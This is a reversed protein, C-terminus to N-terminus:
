RERVQLMNDVETLLGMAKGMDPKLRVFGEVTTLELFIKIL